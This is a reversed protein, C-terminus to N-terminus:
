RKSHLQKTLTRIRLKQKTQVILGSGWGVLVGVLLTLGLWVSSPLSIPQGFLFDLALSQNNNVAFALVYALVVVFIAVLFLTILKKM